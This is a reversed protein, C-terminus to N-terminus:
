DVLDRTILSHTWPDGSPSTFQREGMPLVRGSVTAAILAPVGSNPGSGRASMQVLVMREAEVWSSARATIAFPAGACDGFVTYDDPQGPPYEALIAGYLDLEVDAFPCRWGEYEELSTLDSVRGPLVAVVRLWGSPFERALQLRDAFARYAVDPTQLSPLEMEAQVRYWRVSCQDTGDNLSVLGMQLGFGTVLESM